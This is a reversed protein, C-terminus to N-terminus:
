NGFISLIEQIGGHVQELSQQFMSALTMDEQQDKYDDSVVVQIPKALWHYTGRENQRIPGIGVYRIIESKLKCPDPVRICGASIAGYTQAGANRSRMGNKNYGHIGLDRHRSCKGNRDCVLLPAFFGNYLGRIKESSHDYYLVDPYCYIHNILFAGEPTPTRMDGLGVHTAYIQETTRDRKLGEFSLTFNTRNVVIRFAVFGKRKGVPENKGLEQWDTYLGPLCPDNPPIVINSWDPTESPTISAQMGPINPNDSKPSITDKALGASDETPKESSATRAAKLSQDLVDEIASAGVNSPRSEAYLTQAITLQVCILLVSYIIKAKM